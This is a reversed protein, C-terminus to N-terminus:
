AGKYKYCWAWATLVIFGIVILSTFILAIVEAVRNWKANKFAAWRILFFLMMVIFVISAVRMLHAFDSTM